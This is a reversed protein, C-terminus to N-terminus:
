RRVHQKQGAFGVNEASAAQQETADTARIDGSTDMSHGFGGDVLERLKGQEQEDLRMAQAYVKLALGPDAHGMEAMVVPPPEGLAYLMTAFTRRLSHPTLGAPLPPQRAEALNKDARKIAGALVRNRFNDQGLVRGTRTPFVLGDADISDVRLALLEDRLAGRIKVRRDANDTKSGHISLWGAALDVDRWRLALLESIRLGAFTLTALMARRAVHRRDRPANADLEGAADLLAQIQGATQLYSRTPKRERVRRGRAPNRAILEREVATELIAALLTLTMNVTRPALGAGVKVARYSEVTDITIADLPLEGFHKLLHKELRRKYDARTGESLQGQHLLWWQESYVHFTPVDARASEPIAAPPEWCGDAVRALEITLRDEAEARTVRGLAVARKRRNVTFRLTRLTVGEANRREIITGTAPRAM